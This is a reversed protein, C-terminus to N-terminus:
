ATTRKWFEGPKVIDIGQFSGLTLLDKDVSILLDAKAAVAM